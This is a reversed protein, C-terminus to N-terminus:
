ASIRVLLLAESAHTPPVLSACAVDKDSFIQCFHKQLSPRSYTHTYTYTRANHTYTGTHAYTYTHRHTYAYMAKPPAKDSIDSLFQKQLSSSFVHAYTRAYIHRRMMRVYLYTGAYMHAYTRLHMIRALAQAYTHTHIHRYTQIGAYTIGCTIVCAATSAETRIRVHVYTCM